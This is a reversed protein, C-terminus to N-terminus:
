VLAVALTLSFSFNGDGVCLIEDSSRYLAASGGASRFISAFITIVDIAHELMAFRPNPNSALSIDFTELGGVVVVLAQRKKPGDELESHSDRRRKPM